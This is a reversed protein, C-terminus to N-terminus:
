LRVFKEVNQPRDVQRLRARVRGVLRVLPRPGLEPAPRSLSSPATAWGAVTGKAKIQTM